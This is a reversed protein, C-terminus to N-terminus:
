GAYAPNEVHHLVLIAQVIATARRLCCRLKVLVEGPRSPPAPGNVSRASGPTLATSRGRGAPSDPGTATANSRRESAAAPARSILEVVRDFRLEFDTVDISATHGSRASGDDQQEPQFWELCTDRNRAHAAAIQAKRLLRGASAASAPAEALGVPRDRHGQSYDPDVALRVSNLGTKCV